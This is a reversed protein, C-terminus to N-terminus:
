LWSAQVKHWGPPDLDRIEAEAKFRPWPVGVVSDPGAMWAGWWGFTSNAVVLRKALSMAVLTEAAGAPSEICEVSYGKPVCERAADPDDSFLWVTHRRPDAGVRELARAYYMSGLMGFNGLQAYDGRRVHMAVVDLEQARSRLAALWSSESRLRPSRPAGREVADTVHRWSQFYGEVVAGPAVHLLRPEYGWGQAQFVDAPHRSARLLGVVRRLYYGRRTRAPALIRTISSQRLWQAPLDFNLIEIGHDTMGDRTVRVDCQLRVGLRAALAYGAYYGFLQNGLGGVLRITVPKRENSGRRPTGTAM